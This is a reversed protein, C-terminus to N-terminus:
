TADRTLRPHDGCEASGFSVTSYARMAERAQAAAEHLGSQEQGGGGVAASLWRIYLRAPQEVEHRAKNYREAWSTMAQERAELASAFEEDLWSGFREVMASPRAGSSMAARLRRACEHLTASATRIRAIDAPAHAVNQAGNSLLVADSLARHDTSDLEPRSPSPLDFSREDRASSVPPPQPLDDVDLGMAALETRRAWNAGQFAYTAIGEAARTLEDAASDATYALLLDVRQIGHSLHLSVSDTAPSGPPVRLHFGQTAVVGAVGAVVQALERVEDLNIQLTPVMGDM